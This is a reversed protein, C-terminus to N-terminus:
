GLPGWVPIESMQIACKGNHTDSLCFSLWVISIIFGLNNINILM